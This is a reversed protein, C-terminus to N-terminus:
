VAAAPRQAAASAPTSSCAATGLPAPSTASPLGGPWEPRSLVATMTVPGSSLTVLVGCLLLPGPLVLDPPDFGGMELEFLPDTVMGTFDVKM